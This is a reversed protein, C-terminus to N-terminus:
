LADFGEVPQWEDDVSTFDFLKSFCPQGPTSFHLYPNSALLKDGCRYCFHQKCKACTMHNCGLSKEVHVHCGPCGMTSSELWKKNSQEEEYKAILKRVNSAGYRREIDQRGQSNEPLAMYKIIFVETFSIPCESLPGHWTRRCFACFSYDCAQCTRLRAWGSDEDGTAKPKPVPTQCFQMPCHIMTPDQELARKQRLWKWRKLDSESVVRMVEEEDAERNNKVCAPDPCGVRGIDGETICLGWFDELCGRCFIHSCSLQLCRAGKYSSLCVSCTYANQSFQVSKSATDHAKLLPLLLQPAPHPIHLTSFDDETVNMSPLFEASRIWEVWNYLIGEGSQWMELLKAQLENVQLIWSHTVQLSIIEPPAYVPYAAPLSIHLLVPPLSSLQDYLEISNSIEQALETPFLASLNKNNTVAVSRSDGLDVPIELKIYRTSFDSSICCDPYISELVEWEELQMAHCQELDVQDYQIDAFTSM